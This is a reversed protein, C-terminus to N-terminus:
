IENNDCVEQDIIGHEVWERKADCVNPIGFWMTQVVFLPRVLGRALMKADPSNFTGFWTCVGLLDFM